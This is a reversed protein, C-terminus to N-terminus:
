YIFMDITNNLENDPQGNYTGAVFTSDFSTYLHSQGVTGTGRAKIGMYFDSQLLSLGQPDSDIPDLTTTVQQPTGLTTGGPAIQNRLVEVEHNYKDGHARMYSLNVVGTSTDTSIAPLFHHGSATDVSAPTTWTNGNDASTAMVVEADLCPGGPFPNKCDEYTLFTTFSGGANKRHAHKPFTFEQIAINLMPASINLSPSLPNPVQAVTTPSGCAPASPAAAPTCTTFLITASGDTNANNFSVTILGDSRVQVDAFGASIDSGSVLVPAACVMANSCSALMVTNTQADFNFQIIAVYVNGAGVGASTPREDVAIRPIDSISDFTPQAFLLVPATAEWCSAAQAETHTGSPCASANLLRSAAVRFLGVGGTDASGFRQDAMFFADRAPDAAVAPDGVGMLNSGQASFAPLGGEFQVSCDAAAARHVYYGSVSQDWQTDSALNGRWDNAAQVILDENSGVRNLLFDASAQNQPVANARPELNFRTGQPGGCASAAPAPSKAEGHFDALWAAPVVATKSPEGFARIAPGALPNGTAKLFARGEESALFRLTASPPVRFNQFAKPVAPQQAGFASSILLSAFTYTLRKM